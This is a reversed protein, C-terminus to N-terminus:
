DAPLIPEFEGLVPLPKLIHVDWLATFAAITERANWYFLSGRSYERRDAPV